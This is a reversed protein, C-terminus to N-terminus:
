VVEAAAGLTDHDAIHQVQDAAVTHHKTAVTDPHVLDWHQKEVAQQKGQDENEVGLM